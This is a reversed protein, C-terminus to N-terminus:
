QETALSEVIAKKTVTRCAIWAFLVSVAVSFALAIAFAPIVWLFDLSVTATFLTAAAQGEATAFYYDVLWKAGYSLAGGFVLAFPLALAFVLLIEFFYLKPILSRKAGIAQLMGMYNRRMQVSYNVSNFLNLLTALLIVGGFALMVILIYVCVTDLIRLNGFGLVTISTEPSTYNEIATEGGRCQEFYSLVKSAGLFTKCQIAATTVPMTNIYATEVTDDMGYRAFRVAPFAPFFRHAQAAEEALASVEDSYTAIMREGDLTLVPAAARDSAIWIHADQLSLSNLAYYRESVIGAVTFEHLLDATFYRVGPTGAFDNEPDADDDLYFDKGSGGLSLKGTARITFKAGLVEGPTKGFLRVLPESLLVEGGNGTFGDGLSLVSSTGMDKILGSPVLEGSEPDIVKILPLYPFIPLGASPLSIYHSYTDGFVATGDLEWTYSVASSLSYYDACVIEEVDPMEKVTEFQASSLSFFTPDDVAVGDSYPLDITRLSYSREVTSALDAYFALTFFLVPVLMAFGFAIGRVTNRTSKKRSRVGLFALRLYDSFRMM